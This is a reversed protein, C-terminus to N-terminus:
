ACQEYSDVIKLLITSGSNPTIISFLTPLLVNKLGSEPIKCKVTIHLPM